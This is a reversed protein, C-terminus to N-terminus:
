SDIIWYWFGDIPDKEVGCACRPQHLFPEAMGKGPVFTGWRGKSDACVENLERMPQPNMLVRNLQDSM